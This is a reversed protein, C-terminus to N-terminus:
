TLRNALFYLFAICMIILFLLYVYYGVPEKEKSLTFDDGYYSEIRGNKIAIYIAKAGFILLILTVINLLM